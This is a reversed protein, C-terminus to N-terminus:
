VTCLQGGVIESSFNTAKTFTIMLIYNLGLQLFEDSYMCRNKLSFLLKIRFFYKNQKTKNQKTKTEMGKRYEELKNLVGFRERHKYSSVNGTKSISFVNVPKSM